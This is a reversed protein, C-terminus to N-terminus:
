RTPTVGEVLPQAITQGGIELTFWQSGAPLDFTIRAPLGTDRFDQIIQGQADKIVGENEVIITTEDVVEAFIEALQTMEQAIKHDWLDIETGTELDDLAEMQSEDIADGVGIMVLKLDNREQRDIQRALDICYKKVAELDDLRGDTIFVYMGWEADDFREVFYRLAPLLHTAQGFHRPGAFQYGQCEERRLDGVVEVQRGDGTAWYIVTTGGDADFGTLYETMDRAQQEVINDTYRFIGRKILEDVAQPSWTNYRQGDQEKLTVLGRDKYEKLYPSADGLLLRGFPGQMSASGDIALGTQAGEQQKVVPFYVRVRTEGTALQWYNIKSFADKVLLNQSLTQMPPENTPSSPPPQAPSPSPTESESGGFLKKFFNM